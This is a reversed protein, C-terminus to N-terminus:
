NHTLAPSPMPTTSSDSQFGSKMSSSTVNFKRYLVKFITQLDNVEIPIYIRHPRQVRNTRKNAQWESQSRFIGLLLKKTPDM